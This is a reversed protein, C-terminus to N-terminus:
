HQKNGPIRLPWSVFYHSPCPEWNDDTENNFFSLFSKTMTTQNLLSVVPIAANVISKFSSCVSM